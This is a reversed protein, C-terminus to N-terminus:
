FSLLQAWETNAVTATMRGPPGLPRAQTEKQYDRERERPRSCGFRTWMSSNVSCPHCAHDPSIFPELHTRGWQILAPAQPPNFPLGGFSMAGPVQSHSRTQLFPAQLHLYTYDNSKLGKLGAHDWALKNPLIKNGFLTVNQMGFYIIKPSFINNVKMCHDEM